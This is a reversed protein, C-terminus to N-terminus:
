WTQESMDGIDIVVVTIDDAQARTSRNEPWGLVEDLLREAFREVPLDHHTTIFEGLEAEGFAEGRTNVAEVLGDTYVLLRDGAELTFDTQAYEENPRVGLLLGSENLELLTRAARRWLLVPPHGAASYCGMRKARDLVVYVATAYQGEAQRCLTSNLGAIVKAPEAAIGMQASVAVKVMSAVLAAPVGHGAVDAVVVGLSGPRIVIFDYFDGAVATMPSYRVALHFGGIEPNTSPLISSQIRRAARMEEDLSVLLRENALVRRTAAYGLCCILVFLGYPETDVGWDVLRTSAIRDHAFTLFLALLGFSLVYRDQLHPSKYGMLRGLLLVAPLLFVTGIGAPPILDPRREILITAFTITAFVVYAWIMWRVSSRWGKGYFDEFLLLAPVITALEVFRSVFPWFSQPVGFAMQFQTTTMLLRLGYPGAFLGFWLLVREASRWRFLQVVVAGVGIAAIISGLIVLLLDGRLNSQLQAESVAILFATIM